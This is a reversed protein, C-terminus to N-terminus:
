AALIAPHSRRGIALCACFFVGGAIIVAAGYNCGWWTALYLGGASSIVSYVVIGALLPPISRAVLLMGAAPLVLLAIAMIAGVVQFAVVVMAAVIGLLFSQMLAPSQGTLRALSPDFSTSVLRHRFALVFGAGTLAAGATTIVIRPIEMGAFSARTGHIATELNGFLVCDPDLDVRSAYLKLLVVGISFMTTFAIGTAADERVLGNRHLAEIVMVTLWGSIAAGAILWPSDLSGAVLFGIVIGPLVSHSIADGALSMRRLVLFAGPVGCAISTFIAAVVMWVSSPSRWPDIWFDLTM